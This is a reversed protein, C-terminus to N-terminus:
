QLSKCHPIRSLSEFGLKRYLGQAEFNDTEVQLEFAHLGFDRAFQELQQLVASGVGRHRTSEHLFLDTLLATRGGFEHDFGFTLVAYGVITGDLLVFWARGWDPHELLALLAPRVRAADFAIGDYAYYKEVWELLPELEPTTVAQLSAQSM